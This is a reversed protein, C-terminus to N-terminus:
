DCNNSMVEIVTCNLNLECTKFAMLHSLDHRRISNVSNYLDFITRLHEYMGVIDM